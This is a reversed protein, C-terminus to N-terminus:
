QGAEKKIELKQPISLGYIWPQYMLEVKAAPATVKGSRVVRAIYSVNIERRGYHTVYARVCDKRFEIHDIWTAWSWCSTNGPEIGRPLGQDPLAPNVAEFCAPLRDEAVMYRDKSSSTARASFTVRVVDGVKFVATPKWSGDPELREYRRDVDFGKDVKCVPQPKATYGEMKGSLYVPTNGTNRLLPVKDLKAACVLPTGKAVQIQAGGAELTASVPASERILSCYEHIVLCCWGMDWTNYSHAEKMKSAVYSRLRETLEPPCNTEGLKRCARLETMLRLAEVPPAIEGFENAAAQTDSLAQQLYKGAEKSNGIAAYAFMWRDAQTWVKREEAIAAFVGDVGSGCGYRDLAVLALLNCNPDKVQKLLYKKMKARSAYDTEGQAFSLALAAYPSFESSDSGGWYSFSGDGNMRSLLTKVGKAIVSASDMVEPFCLDLEKELEDKLLWPLLKSSIQETCGHPYSLLYGVGVGISSLPNVSVLLDVDTDPRMETEPLSSVALERGPELTHLLTCSLNPTPPVVPFQLKVADKIAALRGETQEPQVRWTLSATGFSKATVPFTITTPTNGTLTVTQMTEPLTVNDGELTVNWRMTEPSGAPMLDPRMALTVPVDIVDGEAACLPAVPELMVPQAVKYSGQASGFLDAAASAVAMVRYRTMTDPNRYTTSFRGHSDAVIRGLWLACPFFNERLGYDTGPVSAEDGGEADGGGVFIGKNGYDVGNDATDLMQGIMSFTAVARSRTGYFVAYPDPLSYPAVQLTGEDEAYLTVVAGPVPRGEADKVVGSLTCEEQPMLPASPTDLCITLRKEPQDVTLNVSGSKVLPLASKSRGNAGQVLFVSVTVGPADEKVIPIELIPNAVTVSHHFSRKVDGSEVTVQLEADVPTQVLIRATEGVKYVSRDPTLELGSGSYYNWPSSGTGWVYQCIATHYPNGEADKGEIIIDYLGTRDTPVSLHLPEGGLTIERTSVSESERESQVTCGKPTGYRFSQYFHRVVRLTAPMPAGQYAKGEPTVLLADLEIPTGVQTLCDPCKVGAYVSSPDYVVSRVSNLTQQNGNTVSVTGTLRVRQPKEFQPVSLSINGKGDKDLVGQASVYQRNNPGVNRSGFSRRCVREESLDGFCYESFAAPSFTSRRVNLSWGVKADAVPIDNFSKAAVSLAAVKGDASIDLTSDLEFENRRFDELAIECSFERNEELIEDQPEWYGFTGKKLVAMDPSEETDDGKYKLDFDVSSHGYWDSETPIDLHFTGDSEVKVPIEKPTSGIVLRATLSEVEPISLTEGTLTRLIGKIHLTEGPRYLPRDTFVHSLLRPVAEPDIGADRLCENRYDENQKCRDARRSSRTTYFDEGAQVQLFSTEAPYDGAAVGDKVPLESVVNGDTDLLRVVGEAVPKGDGQRYVYAFLKGQSLKWMMGIDTVQVIGQNVIKRCETCGDRATGSIEVFYTARPDRDPFLSAPDLTCEGYGDPQLVCEAKTVSAPLLVTPVPAPFRLNKELEVAPDEEGPELFFAGKVDTEYGAPYLTSYGKMLRATGSVSPDLRFVRATLDKVYESKCHVAASSHTRISSASMDTAVRPARVVLNTSYKMWLSRKEGETELEKGNASKIPSVLRLILPNGNTHCHMALVGDTQPRDASVKEDFSLTAIEKGEVDTLSFHEKAEDWKMTDGREAGWTGIKWTMSRFLEKGEKELPQNYRLEVSFDQASLSESTLVAELEPLQWKALNYDERSGAESDYIGIGPICLRLEEEPGPESCTEIRWLHPIPTDPAVEEFERRMKDTDCGGTDMYDCFDGWVGLVDAATAPRVRAPERRIVTGDESKELSFFAKDVRADLFAADEDGSGGILLYPPMGGSCLNYYDFSQEIGIQWPSGFAPRSVGSMGRGNLSKLGKPITLNKIDCSRCDEALTLRFANTATWTATCSVGAPVSYYSADVESGVMEEGVMPEPFSVEVGEGKSNAIMRYAGVTVRPIATTQAAEEVSQVPSAQVMAVPATFCLLFFYPTKIMPPLFEATKELM